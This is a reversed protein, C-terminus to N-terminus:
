DKFVYAGCKLCKRDIDESMGGCAYLGYCFTRNDKLGMEHSTTNAKKCDDDLPKGRLSARNAKSYINNEM